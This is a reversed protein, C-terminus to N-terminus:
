LWAQTCSSGGPWGEGEERFAEDRTWELVGPATVAKPSEVAWWGSPVTRRRWFPGRRCPRTEPSEAAIVHERQERQERTM